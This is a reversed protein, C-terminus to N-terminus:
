GRPSSHRQLVPSLDASHGLQSAWIAPTPIIPMAAWLFSVLVKDSFRRLQYTYLPSAFSNAAGFRPPHRVLKPLLNPGQDGWVRGRWRRCFGCPRGRHRRRSSRRRACPCGTSHAAWASPPRKWRARRMSSEVTFAKSTPSTSSSVAVAVTSTVKSSLHPPFLPLAADVPPVISTAHFLKRSATHPWPTDSAPVKKGRCRGGRPRVRNLTDCSEPRMRSSDRGLAIFPSCYNGYM